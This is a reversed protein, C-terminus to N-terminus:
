APVFFIGHKPCRYHAGTPTKSERKVWSGCDPCPQRVPMNPGGRGTAVIRYHKPEKVPRERAPPAKAPMPKHKAGPLSRLLKKIVKLCM